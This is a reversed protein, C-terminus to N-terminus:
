CRVGRFLRCNKLEKHKSSFERAVKGKLDGRGRIYMNGGSRGLSLRSQNAVIYLISNSRKVWQNSKGRECLTPFLLGPCIINIIYVSHKNVAGHTCYIYLLVRNKSDNPIVQVWRSRYSIYAIARVAVCLSSLSLCFSALSTTIKTTAASLFYQLHNTSGIMSLLFFPRM